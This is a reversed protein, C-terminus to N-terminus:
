DNLSRELEAVLCAGLLAFAGADLEADLMTGGAMMGGATAGGPTARGPRAGGAARGGDVCVATTGLTPDALATASLSWGPRARHGALLHAVAPAPLDTAWWRQQHGEATRRRYLGAGEPVLAGALEVECVAAAFPVAAGAHGPPGALHALLRFQAPTLDCAPHAGVLIRNGNYGRLEARAGPVAGLLTAALRLKVGLPM